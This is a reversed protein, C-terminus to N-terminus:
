TPEGYKRRAACFSCNVVKKHLWQQFCSFSHQLTNPQRASSTGVWRLFYFRNRFYLNLALPNITQLQSPSHSFAPATTTAMWSHLHWFIWWCFICFVFFNILIKSHELTPSWNDNTNYKQDHFSYKIDM